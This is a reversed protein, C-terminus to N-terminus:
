RSKAAKSKPCLWDLDTDFRALVTYLESLGNSCCQVAVFCSSMRSRVLRVLLGHATIDRVHAGFSAQAQCQSSVICDPATESLRNFCHRTLYIYICVNKTHAYTTNSMAMHQKRIHQMHTHTRKHVWTDFWMEKQLERMSHNLRPATACWFCTSTEKCSHHSSSPM